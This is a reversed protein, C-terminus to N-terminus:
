QEKKDTSPELGSDFRNILFNSILFIFFAQIIVFWFL